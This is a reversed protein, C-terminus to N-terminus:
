CRAPYVYPERAATTAPVAVVWSVGTRGFAGMECVCGRGTVVLIMDGGERKVVMVVVVVVFQMDTLPEVLRANTKVRHCGSHSRWSNSSVSSHLLSLANALQLPFSFILM